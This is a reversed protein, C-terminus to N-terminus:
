PIRLIPGRFEPAIDIAHSGSDILPHLGQRVVRNEVALIIVVIAITASGSYGILLVREKVLPVAVGPCCPNRGAASTSM